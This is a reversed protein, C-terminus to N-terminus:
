QTASVTRLALVVVNLVYLTQPQCPVCSKKRANDRVAEEAHNDQFRCADIWRPCRNNLWCLSAHFTKARNAMQRRQCARYQSAIRGRAIVDLCDDDAVCDFACHRVSRGVRLIVARLAVAHRPHGLACLIAGAGDLGSM